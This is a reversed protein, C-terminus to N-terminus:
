TVTDRIVHGIKAFDKSRPDSERWVLGIKRSPVPAKFSVPKLNTGNLIGNDVAMAPLLSMGFGSAVMQVITYLSTGALARETRDRGTLQCASLAHDRLCHGEELLLVSQGSLDDLTIEAPMSSNEPFVSVFPDDFLPMEELQGCAFPLAYLVLDLDGSKLKSCLDSSKGEVLALELEPFSDRLAPMIDPLLFPAITPIIGMVMPGSLPARARAALQTLDTVKNLIDSSRAVIELGLPTFMVTRKTREVLKLGLLAELEQIGSSLTSQSVGAEEAAKGFHMHRNLSVLYKLQKLTPPYNM